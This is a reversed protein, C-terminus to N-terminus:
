RSTEFLDAAMGACDGVNDGVNDAIVAPNRPDDEPIGVEVKGVLDAGVDAGKTFNRRGFARLNFDAIRWVCLRDDSAFARARESSCAYRAAGLLFGRRRDILGVVLLGTIAGGRFAINLAPNLGLTAAQATRVNARVSVNMGVYGAAGSLVAGLLFGIATWIGLQPVIAIIIALVVGVVAITRYQRNLYAQAGQQIAAAIEQMRANGAPQKLIWSISWVGFVVAAFGCALALALGSM